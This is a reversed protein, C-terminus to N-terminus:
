ENIIALIDSEKLILYEHGDIKVETGGWKTFLIRNGKKVELPIINGKEDRTGKGVAVVEGRQPKEQATDPIIIGKASKQEQELRKVLVNSYLPTVNM